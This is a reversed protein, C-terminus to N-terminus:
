KNATLGGKGIACVRELYAHDVSIYTYKYIPIGHNDVLGHFRVESTCRPDVKIVRRQRKM